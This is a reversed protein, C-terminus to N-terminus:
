GGFGTVPRASPPAMGAVISITGNPALKRVENDALDAIYVMGGPGLAVAQPFGVAARAAPGGDGCQPAAACGAGTGAVTWITRVGAGAAAAPVAVGLAVPVSGLIMLARPFRGRFRAFQM